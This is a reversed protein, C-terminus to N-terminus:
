IVEGDLNVLALIDHAHGLATSLKERLEERLKDSEALDRALADREAAVLMVESNIKRLEERAEDRQRKLREIGKDRKALEELARDREANAEYILGNAQQIWSSQETKRTIAAQRDLFELMKKEWYAGLNNTGGSPNAYQRVDEELKERSDDFDRIDDKATANEATEESKPADSQGIQQKTAQEGDVESGVESGSGLSSGLNERSDSELERQDSDSEMSHERSDDADVHEAMFWESSHPCKGDVGYKDYACDSCMFSADVDMFCRLVYKVADRDNEMLWELNTM